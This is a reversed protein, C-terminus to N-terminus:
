VWIESTEQMPLLPEKGSTGGPFGLGKANKHKHTHTHTHTLDSRDHGVRQLGTSQLGGLEETWPTRWALVISHTTM